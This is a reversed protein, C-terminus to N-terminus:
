RVVWTQLSHRIPASIILKIQNNKGHVQFGSQSFGGIVNGSYISDNTFMIVASSRSDVVTNANADVGIKNGSVVHGDGRLFLEVYPSGSVVNNKIKWGHASLGSEISPTGANLM